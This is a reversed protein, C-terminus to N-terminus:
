LNEAALIDRIQLHIFANGMEERIVPSAVVQYQAADPIQIQRQLSGHWVRKQEDTMRIFRDRVVSMGAPSLLFSPRPNGIGFPHLRELWEVLEKTLDVFSLVADCNISRSSATRSDKIIQDFERQFTEINEESISLGCAHRHGGYRILLSSVLGIANHLNVGEAGRASGKWVGNVKTLVVAPKKYLEALRQAAIGIVGVPWDEKYLVISNQNEIDQGALQDLADTLISEEIQQRKRNTAQLTELLSSSMEPDDCLLFQLALKPDDVRGMANIRPIIVFGLGYGALNGNLVPHKKLFARLWTRPKRRMVELGFRVLIRNDKLLPVMDGVTGVTVLDLEQKLNVKEALLGLQSAIRRLAMLFFFTVGCAALERTPFSSCARKPNILAVAQPELSPVEHHDLIVVDMGRAKALLVEENNSSGCDLCILLRTGQGALREIAVANLGYGEERKPIYTFPECGMRKLMNLLLAASTIGDADYDAFLAIPEEQRIAQIVREVGKAADPLSFPDSLYELRPSLFAEAEVPDAIGRDALIRAVLPPSGLREQIQRVADDDGNAPVPQV